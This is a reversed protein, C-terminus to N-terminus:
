TWIETVNSLADVARAPCDEKGEPIPGILRTLFDTDISSVKELDRGQILQCLVSASAIQTPCGFTEYSAAQIVGQAVILEVVCFPGDGPSGSVGRHTAGQLPGCFRPNHIHELALVSFM